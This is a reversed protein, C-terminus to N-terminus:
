SPPSPTEASSSSRFMPQFLKPIWFHRPERTALRVVVWSCGRSCDSKGPRTIMQPWAAAAILKAGVDGLPNSALQLQHLRCSYAALLERLGAATLGTKMLTLDRLRPLHAAALVRAGFDGFPQGSLDLTELTASWPAQTLSELGATTITPLGTNEDLFHLQQPLLILSKLVPWNAQVLQEAAQDTIATQDLVLSELRALNPSDALLGALTEGDVASRANGGLNLNTLSAVIPSFLLERCGTSGIDCHSLVLTTLRTLVKSGALATAGVDGVGAAEITLSRLGPHQPRTAFCRIAEGLSARTGRNGM